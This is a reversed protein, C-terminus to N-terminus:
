PHSARPPRAPKPLPHDKQAQPLEAEQDVEGASLSVEEVLLNMQASSLKESKPGFLRFNLLRIQEDKLRLVQHLRTNEAELLSLRQLLDPLSASPTQEPM